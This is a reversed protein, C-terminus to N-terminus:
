PLGKTPGSTSPTSFESWKTTGNKLLIEGRIQWDLNLSDKAPISVRVHIEMHLCDESNVIRGYLADDSNPRSGVVQYRLVVAEHPPSFFIAITFANRICVNWINPIPPVDLLNWV